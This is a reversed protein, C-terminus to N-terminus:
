QAACSSTTLNSKVVPIHRPAVTRKGRRLPWAIANKGYRRGNLGAFGRRAPCSGPATSLRVTASIGAGDVYASYVLCACECGWAYSRSIALTRAPIDERTRGMRGTPGTIRLGSRATLGCSKSVENTTIPSPTKRFPLPTSRYAAECKSTENTRMHQFNCFLPSLRQM